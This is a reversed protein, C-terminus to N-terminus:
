LNELAHKWNDGSRRALALTSVKRVFSFLRNGNLDKGKLEQTSHGVVTRKWALFRKQLEPLEADSVTIGCFLSRGKNNGWSFSGSDDVVNWM